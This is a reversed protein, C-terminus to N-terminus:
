FDDRLVSPIDKARYVGNSEGIAHKHQVRKLLIFARPRLMKQMTVVLAHLSAMVVFLISGGIMLERSAV